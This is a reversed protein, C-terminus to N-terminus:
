RRDFPPLYEGAVREEVMGLREEICREIYLALDPRPLNMLLLTREGTTQIAWVRYSRGVNGSRSDRVEQEDVFLQRLSALEVSRTPAALSIPEDRVRIDVASVRIFTSNLWLTLDFYGFAVGIVCFLVIICWASLPFGRGASHTLVITVFFAMFINWALATPLMQAAPKRSPRYRITFSAPSDGNQLDIELPMPVTPHGGGGQAGPGASRYPANPLDALAQNLHEDLAREIYKAEELPIPGLLPV